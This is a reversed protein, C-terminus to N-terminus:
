IRKLNNAMTMMEEVTKVAKSNIEYARQATIMSIMEEVIDVNSTEVYGQHITGFNDETPTGIVPPGSAETELYMNDGIAELGGPNVFNALELTGVEFAEGNSDLVRIDGEETIQVQSIDADITIGPLVLYGNSTVLSGDSSLTFSGDRTYAFSGDPQRVQFFGEGHIGVDLPNGTQTLDGQLHLKETSSLKVGTGVQVTQNAREIIGPLYSNVPHAIVEQYILDEFEARNKKFSNTNVNALNNSIVEINVQQAYMGSAATFLARTPM